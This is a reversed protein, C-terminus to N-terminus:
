IRGPDESNPRAEATFAYPILDTNPPLRWHDPSEYEYARDPLNLLLAPTAGLNQAGHWVGPPVVILAPRISGFRFVNVRRETLSGARADFLVIKILGDNAFLRDTAHRHVHWASIAHPALLAQFVQAVTSPTLGWDARWIETLYGNDKPVNKVERVQVGDILSQLPQWDRTISQSDRTSGPLAGQQPALRADHPTDPGNL